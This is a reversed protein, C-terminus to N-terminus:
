PATGPLVFAAGSQSSDGNAGPAGLLLDRLGDGTVDAGGAVGYGLTWYEADGDFRADASAAPIIGALPGYLVYATGASRGFRSNAPAGALVDAKGDGDLDAVAVSEGLGGGTEGEVRADALLYSVTGSLSDRGVVYAAGAYADPVFSGVVLDARGDGDVDGAALANASEGLRAQSPGEVVADAGSALATGSLPGFVVYVGGPADAGGHYPAGVGLDDFGDGNVDGLGAVSAGLFEAPTDGYLLFATRSASVDGTSGGDFVVALGGSAAGADSDSAGVAVDMRGDGDADVAGIGIGFEDDDDTSTFRADASAAGLRGSAGGRVLYVTGSVRPSTHVSLFGGATAWDDAGDGDADGLPVLSRGLRDNVAVGELRLAYESGLSLSGTVPGNVVYVSGAASASDSGSPSSVLVDAVGDGNVDAMAVAHGAADGTRQGALTHGAPLRTEAPWRATPDADTDTDADTDADTDTDTDTDGDADADADADADGEERCDPAGACDTDDCDFAGDHDNDAGDYCEGAVDGEYAVEAGCAALLALWLM